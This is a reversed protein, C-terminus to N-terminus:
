KSNYERYCTVSTIDQKKLGDILTPSIKLQEFTNM